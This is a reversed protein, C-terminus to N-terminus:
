SDFAPTRAGSEGAAGGAEGPVRILRTSAIHCVFACAMGVLLDLAYHEALYMLSLGMAVSYFLLPIAVRPYHTRAWLYMAFTVGMHISPMAAVSNPEGLSQYFTRYTEMDVQGGVFDMVRYAGPLVGMRGAFWPPATPFLFFLVLGLYLTGLMLVTYRAFYQRRWIFVAVAAAHPAVFFSWHVGVALWDLADIHGPSFYHSQLWSVPVTDFFLMRDADIPYMVRVPIGTEDAYSRLLAYAFTGAVYAFWWRRARPRWMEPLWVVAAAAVLVFGLWIHDQWVKTVITGTMALLVLVQVPLLLRDAVPRLRSAAAVRAAGLREGAQEEVQLASM